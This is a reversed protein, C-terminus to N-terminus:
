SRIGTPRLPESLHEFAQGSAVLCTMGSPLTVAITWTGTKSTFVEFIAKGSSSLGLARPAEKYKESLAKLLKTRDGCTMGAAQVQAAGIFLVSVFAIALIKSISKWNSSIMDYGKEALLRGSSLNYYTYADSASQLQVM